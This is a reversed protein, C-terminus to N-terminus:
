LFLAGSQLQKSSSISQPKERGWKSIVFPNKHGGLCLLPSPGQLRGGQDKQPGHAPERGASWQEARSLKSM